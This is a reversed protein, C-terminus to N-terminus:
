RRLDAAGAKGGDSQMRKNPSDKISAIITILRRSNVSSM